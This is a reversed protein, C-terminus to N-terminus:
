LPREHESLLHSRRDSLRYQRRRGAPAPDRLRHLGLRQGLTEGDGNPWTTTGANADPNDDLADGTDNPAPCVIEGPGPKAPDAACEPAVNLGKDYIVRALFGQPAESQNVLCIAVQYTDGVYVTRQSDLSNCPGGGNSPNADIALEFPPTATTYVNKFDTYDLIGYPLSFVALVVGASAGLALVVLGAVAAFVPATKM